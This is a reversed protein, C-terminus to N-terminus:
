ATPSPSRRGRYLDFAMLAAAWLDDDLNALAAPDVDGSDNYLAGALKMLHQEGSSWYGQGMAEFDVTARKFDIFPEAKEWVSDRVAALWLFSRWNRDPAEGRSRIYLREAEEYRKLHDSVPGGRASGKQRSVWTMVLNYIARNQGGPYQRLLQWWVKPLRVSRSETADEPPKPPRGRPKAHDTM